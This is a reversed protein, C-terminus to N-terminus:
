HEGQLQRMLQQIGPEAPFLAVLIEGYRLAAERSGLDHNITALAVLTDRDAPHRRYNAELVGLAERRKGTSDLAVAYVYAYRADGPELKAAKALSAIAAPYRQQRVLLLGLAHHLVPERPTSRLAERLLKEGDVDRGLNRYLDALNVYARVFGPELKLAARYEAEAKDPANRQSYLLGLNARSEPRDANVQQVAVYEEIGKDLESRQEAALSEVPVPLLFSVAEIRVSRVPDALLHHAAAWRLEVPMASLGRLAGIRVLESDDHLGKQVDSFLIPPLYAALEAYATARGIAPQTRDQAVAFLLKNSEPSGSRAAHFAPTWTQLGKRQPGHWKEIAAAAWQAPKGRHCDNCANPTGYKVSLDPRPVRFSHDHRPDIVMYTRVPMHCAPCGSLESTPPHGTHARNGYKEPAHCQYCVGNGPMRLKGSHPDHCDGCTVGQEHMRSQLFSGYNYVEDRMQGDAEYLDGTLLAPQHTDALLSGPVHGESIQARRSHCLACTEIEKRTSRPVSRKANGTVADMVWKVGAREDFKVVLGKDPARGKNRAWQAHASGPGHCAECAVNIESWTTKFTDSASDYNKRVNTSHCEACMFNWNQAGRTWHLPDSHTIREEPYLHYWRQGGKPKPRTDWVVSLAQIRGDPFEVLYQQLPEVGFTYKVEFDVLKGDRGDTRVFYKGDRRFFTSTVGAYTFHADDFNGLVSAPTAHQMALQHQSGVWAAHQGAHCQRCTEAGVYHADAPPVAPTRHPQRALSWWGLASAAALAIAILCVLRVGPKL